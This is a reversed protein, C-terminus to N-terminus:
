SAADIAELAQGVPYGKAKGDRARQISCITGGSRRYIHHSGSIRALVFGSQELLSQLETFRVDRPNKRVADLLKAKKSM